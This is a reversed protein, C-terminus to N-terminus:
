FIPLIIPVKNNMDEYFIFILIIVLNSSYTLNNSGKIKKSYLSRNIALNESFDREDQAFVDPPISRFQGNM